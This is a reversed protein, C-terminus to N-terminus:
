FRKAHVPHGRTSLTNNTKRNGIVAVISSLLAPLVLTFLNSYAFRERGFKYALSLISAQEKLKALGIKNIDSM